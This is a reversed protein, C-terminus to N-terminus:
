DKSSWNRNLSRICQLWLNQMVKLFSCVISFFGWKALSSPAVKKGVPFVVQWRTQWDYILYPTLDGFNIQAGTYLWVWQSLGAVAVGGEGGGGRGGCKPEYVLASNTLWSLGCSYLLTQNNLFPQSLSGNLLLLLLPPIVVLLLPVEGLRVPGLDPLLHALENYFFM